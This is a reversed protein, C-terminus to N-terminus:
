ACAIAELSNNSTLSDFDLMNWQDRIKIVWYKFSFGKGSGTRWWKRQKSRSGVSFGNRSDKEPEVEQVLADTCSCQDQSRTNYM